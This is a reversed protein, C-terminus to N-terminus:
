NFEEIIKFDSKLVLIRKVVKESNFTQISSLLTDITENTTFNTFLPMPKYLKSNTNKTKDIIAQKAINLLFISEDVNNVIFNYVFDDNQYEARSKYICDDNQCIKISNDFSEFTINCIDCNVKM